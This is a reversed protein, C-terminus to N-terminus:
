HEVNRHFMAWTIWNDANPSTHTFGYTCDFGWCARINPAYKKMLMTQRLMTEGGGSHAALCIRGVAPRKKYQPVKAQLFDRVDDLLDDAGGPEDLSGTMKGSAGPKRGMTPAILVVSKGADNIAQRLAIDHVSGPKWYDWITSWKQKDGHFFLVIDIPDP